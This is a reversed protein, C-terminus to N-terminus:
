KFSSNLPFFFLSVVTKPTVAAKSTFAGFNEILHRMEEVVSVETAMHGEALGSLYTSLKHISPFDFVVNQGLNMGGVDVKRLILTRLQIAHLSDLGLAFFDTDDHVDDSLERGIVQGLAERLFLRLESMSMMELDASSTDAADYAADIISAFAKYFAQRIVSGKDTRPYTCDTPLVCIM